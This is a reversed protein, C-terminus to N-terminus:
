GGTGMSANWNVYGVVRQIALLLGVFEELEQEVLWYCTYGALWAGVVFGGPVAWWEIAQGCSQPRGWRNALLVPLLHEQSRPVGVVLDWRWEAHTLAM